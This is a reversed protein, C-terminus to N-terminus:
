ESESDTDEQEDDDPEEFEDFFSPQYEIPRKKAKKDSRKDSYASNTKVGGFLGARSPSVMDVVKGSPSKNDLLFNQITECLSEPTIDGSPIPLVQEGTRPDILCIYPEEQVKYFTKFRYGEATRIPQQWFVLHHRIMSKLTIDSWLDRNLTQCKFNYDDQLNVLIWKDHTKGFERAADLSGSFLIEIPPMFLAEIRSKKAVPAEGKMMQEQIQGELKFDRFPITPITAVRRRRFDSHDVLIERKKPIPARVEPEEIVPQPNSNSTGPPGATEFYTNVAEDL